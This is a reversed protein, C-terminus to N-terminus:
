SRQGPHCTLRFSRRSSAPSLPGDRPVAEGHRVLYLFHTMRSGGPNM